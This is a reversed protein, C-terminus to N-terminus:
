LHSRVRSASPRRRNELKSRKAAGAAWATPPRRAEGGSSEPPETSSCARDYINSSGFFEVQGGEIALEPDEGFSVPATEM